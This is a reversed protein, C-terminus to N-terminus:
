NQFLPTIVYIFFCLLVKDPLSFTAKKGRNKLPYKRLLDERYDEVDLLITIFDEREIGVNRVFDKRKIMEYKEM